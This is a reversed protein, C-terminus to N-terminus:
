RSENFENTKPKSHSQEIYIGSLIIAAVAVCIFFVQIFKLIANIM